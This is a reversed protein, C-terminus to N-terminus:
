QEDDCLCALVRRPPTFPRRAHLAQRNDVMVVDRKKWIFDVANEEFVDELTKMDDPNMVDGNPYVVARTRDNRSDQWGLYAAIISNFWTKKGTRPDVKVGPLVKTTTKLNGNDLWELETGQAKAKEIVEEKNDTLYTSKWGRGIPSNPDDNEPMVRIYRVGEEELRKVFEPRRKQMEQYIVNSPVLTTQGGNSPAIECNFFLVKPFNPVQAMEHHYPIKESPPAENATFVNGTVVTRPAAGGVYPFAKYGFIKM